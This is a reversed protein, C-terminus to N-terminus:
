ADYVRNDTSGASKSVGSQPRYRGVTELVGSVFAPYRKPDLM